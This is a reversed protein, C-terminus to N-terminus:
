RRGQPRAAIMGTIIFASVLAAVLTTVGPRADYLRGAAVIVTVTVAIAGTVIALDKTFRWLRQRTGSVSMISRSASHERAAPQAEERNSRATLATFQNWDTRRRDEQVHM